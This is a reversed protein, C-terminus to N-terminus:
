VQFFYDISHCLLYDQVYLTSLIFWLRRHSSIWDSNVCVLDHHRDFCNVVFDSIYMAFDIHLMINIVFQRILGSM